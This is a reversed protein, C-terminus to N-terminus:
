GEPIAREAVVSAIKLLYEDFEIRKVITANESM